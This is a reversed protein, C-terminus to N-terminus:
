RSFPVSCVICSVTLTLPPRILLCLRCLPDTCHDATIGASRRSYTFMGTSSDAPLNLHCTRLVPGAESAKLEHRSTTKIPIGVRWMGASFYLLEGVLSFAISLVDQAKGLDSPCLKSFSGRIRSVLDPVVSFVRFVLIPHCANYPLFSYTTNDAASGDGASEDGHM